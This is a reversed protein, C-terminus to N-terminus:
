YLWNLSLYILAVEQKSRIQSWFDALKGSELGVLSGFM